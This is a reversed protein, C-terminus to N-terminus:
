RCSTNSLCSTHNGITAIYSTILNIIIHESPYFSTYCLWYQKNCCLLFFFFNLCHHKSKKSIYIFFMYDSIIIFSIFIVSNLFCGINKFIGWDENFLQWVEGELVYFISNFFIKSIMINFINKMIINM